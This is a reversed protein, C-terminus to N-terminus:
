KRTWVWEFAKARPGCSDIKAIIALKNAEITLYYEGIMSCDPDVVIKMINASLEFEAHSNTHGAVSDLLIWDFTNNANFRLEVNYQQGQADSQLVTWSGYIDPSDVSNDCNCDKKCSGSILIIMLFISFSLKKMALLTHIFLNLFINDHM